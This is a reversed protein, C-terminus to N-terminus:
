RTTSTATPATIPRSTRQSPAGAPTSSSTSLMWTSPTGSSPRPGRLRLGAGSRPAAARPDRQGAGGEEVLQRVTKNPDLEPEQSLLGTTYGKSGATEGIFETDLGAMIRLLTSKGSGNLGLVGIKAGYYFSLSIDRLVLKNTPPYMKGVKMMSFIVQESM